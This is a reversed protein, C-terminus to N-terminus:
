MVNKKIRDWSLGRTMTSTGLIGTQPLLERAFVIIKDELKKFERELNDFSTDKLKVINEEPVGMMQATQM